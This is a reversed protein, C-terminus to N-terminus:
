PARSSGDSCPPRLIASNKSSVTCRLKLRTSVGAASKVGVDSSFSMQQSEKNTNQQYSSSQLVSTDVVRAGLCVCVCVCVIQIKRASFESPPVRPMARRRWRGAGSGFLTTRKWSLFSDNENTDPDEFGHDGPDVSIQSIKNAKEIADDSLTEMKLSTM